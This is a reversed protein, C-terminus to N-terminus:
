HVVNRNSQSALAHLSNPPKFFKMIAEAKERQLRCGSSKARLLLHLPLDEKRSIRFQPLRTANLRTISSEWTSPQVKAKDKEREYDSATVPEASTVQFVKIYEDALAGCVVASVDVDVYGM